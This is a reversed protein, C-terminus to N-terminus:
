ILNAIIKAYKSEKSKDARVALIQKRMDKNEKILSDVREHFTQLHL